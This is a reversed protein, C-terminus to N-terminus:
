KKALKRAVDEVEGWVRMLNGGWIMRIQERTYGRRRLEATVAPADAPGAFGTVAGGGDFDSGIGVHRIGAVQVVHDLHDVFESLGPPPYLSDVQAVPELYRSSMKDYATRDNEYLALLSDYGAALAGTKALLAEQMEHKAAPFSVFSPVATIQVVGGRAAIAKLQQDSLNRPNECLARCCSHSAILPAVSIALADEVTAPGTHSIDVMIGLRNMEAVVRRGFDSLGNHLPPPPGAARAEALYLDRLLRTADADPSEGSPYPRDPPNCSDAIRNHGNHTLTLYRVGRQYYHSLLSLDEGLPYGNEMGIAVAIRGGARIRKVDGPSRALAVKNPYKACMREIADLRNGTFSLRAEATSESDLEGQPTYAILFVCGYGGQGAADFNFLLPSDHAGPDSKKATAYDLPIDVHSDLVLLNKHLRATQALGGGAMTAMILLAGSLNRLGAFVSGSYSQLTSKM